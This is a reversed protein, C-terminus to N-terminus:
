AAVAEGALGALWILADRFGEQRLSMALGIVDTGWRCQRCWVRAPPDRRIVLRDAGGCVLCAAHAERPGVDHLHYGERTFVELIDVRERVLQALERWEQYRRDSPSPLSTNLRALRERRALEDRIARRRKRALYRGVEGPFDPDPDVEDIAFVDDFSQLADVSYFRVAISAERYALSPPASAERHQIMSM